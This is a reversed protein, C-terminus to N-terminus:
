YLKNSCFFPIQARMELRTEQMSSAETTKCLAWPTAHQQKPEPKILQTELKLFQVRTRSCLFARNGSANAQSRPIWGRDELDLGPRWELCTRFSNMSEWCTCNVIKSGTQLLFWSQIVLLLISYWQGTAQGFTQVGKSQTQCPFLFKDLSWLAISRNKFLFCTLSTFFFSCFLLAVFLCSMVKHHVALHKCM